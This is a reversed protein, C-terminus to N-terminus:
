APPESARAAAQEPSQASAGVLWAAGALGVLTAMPALWRFRRRTVGVGGVAVASEALHPKAQFEHNPNAPMACSRTTNRKLEHARQTRSRCRGVPPPTAVHGTADGAM